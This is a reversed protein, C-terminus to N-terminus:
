SCEWSSSDAPIEHNFGSIDTKRGIKTKRQGKVRQWIEEGGMKEYGKQKGNGERKDGSWLENGWILRM